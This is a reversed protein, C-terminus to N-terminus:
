NGSDEQLIDPSSYKFSDTYCRVVPEKHEPWKLAEIERKLNELQSRLNSKREEINTIM